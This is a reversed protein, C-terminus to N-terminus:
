MYMSSALKQRKALVQQSLAAKFAESAGEAIGGVIARYPGKPDLLVRAFGELSSMTVEMTGVRQDLVAFLGEAPIGEV